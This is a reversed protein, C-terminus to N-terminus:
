RAWSPLPRPNTQSEDEKGRRFNRPFTAPFGYHDFGTTQVTCEPLSDTLTRIGDDTVKYRLSQPADPAAEFLEVLELNKCNALAQLQEDSFAVPSISLSKLSQCGALIKLISDDVLVSEFKLHEIRGLSCLQQLQQKETPGLVRVSPTAARSQDPPDDLSFVEVETEMVFEPKLEHSALEVATIRHFHEEGLWYHAWSPGMPQPRNSQRYGIPYSNWVSLWDGERPEYDYRVRGGLENVLNFVIRQNHGHQTQIAVFFACAGLLLFLTGIRFRARQMIAM